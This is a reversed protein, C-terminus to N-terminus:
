AYSPAPVLIRPRRLLPLLCLSVCHVACVAACVTALGGAYDDLKPSAGLRNFFLGGIIAMAVAPGIQLVTNLVGSVMGVDDDGAAALVIRVLSPLVIGMGLGIPITAALLWATPASSATLGLVFLPLGVLMLAYGIAPAGLGIRNVLVPTATSGTLFGAGFPIIALGSAFPSWGAGDQLYLAYSLFFPAFWYVLFALAMGVALARQRFLGLRVLPQGGRTELSLEFRCFAILVAVGLALAVRILPSRGAEHGQALPFIVLLLGITLLATGRFDLRVVGSRRDPPLLRFAAVLVILGIPLNILFIARWDLSVLLGGLLQGAVTALGVMAGYLGIARGRHPEEFMQRIMALVQPSMLAAAAGQGLRGVLLGGIGGALGCLASAAMFAALGVMFIRRRGYRDGLRAGTILFAAYTTLYLSFLLQLNGSSVHWTARIVPVAVNVISFDLPLLFGGTLLVALGLWPRRGPPTPARESTVDSLAFALSAM